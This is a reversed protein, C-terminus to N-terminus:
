HPNAGTIPTVSGSHRAAAAENEAQLGAKEEATLQRVQSRHFLRLNKIKLSKSGEVPRYGASLWRNFTRVDEHPTVNGFGAKKFAKVVAIENQMSAQMEARPRDLAEGVIKNVDELNFTPARTKPAKTTTDMICRRHDTAGGDIPSSSRRRDLRGARGM